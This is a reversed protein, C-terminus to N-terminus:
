NEKESLETHFDNNGLVIYYGCEPCTTDWWNEWETKDCEKQLIEFVCGCEKCTVVTKRYYNGHKLVKM